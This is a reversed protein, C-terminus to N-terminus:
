MDKRWNSGRGEATNRTSRRTSLSIRSRRRIVRAFCVVCSPAVHDVLDGFILCDPLCGISVVPVDANVGGFQVDAFGYLPDL